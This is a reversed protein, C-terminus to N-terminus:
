HSRTPLRGETIALGDKGIIHRFYRQYMRSRKNIECLAVICSALKALPKYATSMLSNQIPVGGGWRQQIAICHGFSHNPAIHFAKHKCM